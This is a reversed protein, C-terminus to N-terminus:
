DGDKEGEDKLLKEMNLVDDYLVDKFSSVSGRPITVGYSDYIQSWKTVSLQLKFNKATNRNFIQYKCIPVGNGPKGGNGYDSFFSCGVEHTIYKKFRKQDLMGMDPASIALVFGFHRYLLILYGYWLEVKNRTKAKDLKFQGEDWGIGAQYLDSGINEWNIERGSKELKSAMARILQISKIFRADDWCEYKGYATKLPYDTITKMGWYKRIKYLLWTIFLTKGAGQKGCVGLVSAIGAPGSLMDQIWLMEQVEKPTWKSTPKEVLMVM